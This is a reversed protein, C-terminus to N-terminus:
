EPHDIQCVTSMSGSNTSAENVESQLERRLATLEALRARQQSRGRATYQQSTLCASIASEVEALLDAAAM